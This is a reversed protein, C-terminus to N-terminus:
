LDLRVWALSVTGSLVHEQHRGLTCTKNCCNRHRFYEFTLLWDRIHQPICSEHTLIRHREPLTLASALPAQLLRIQDLDPEMWVRCDITNSYEGEEESSHRGENDGADSGTGQEDVCVILWDVM